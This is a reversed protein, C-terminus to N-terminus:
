IYLKQWVARKMEKNESRVSNLFSELSYMEHIPFSIRLWDALMTITQKPSHRMQKSITDQNNIYKLFTTVVM